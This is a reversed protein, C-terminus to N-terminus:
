KLVHRYSTNSFPCLDWKGIWTSDLCLDVDWSSSPMERANCGGFCNQTCDMCM